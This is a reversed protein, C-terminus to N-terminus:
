YPSIGPPERRTRYRALAAAASASIILQAAWIAMALALILDDHESERWAEYSDHGGASIKARFKLMENTLLEAHPLGKAIRLVRNQVALQAVAVLDRKPVTYEQNGVLNVTAGNTITIGIPSLDSFHEIVGRGVGTQDVALYRPMPIGACRIRTQQAIATYKTQLPFREIHRVDIQTLPMMEVPRTSTMPLGTERDRVDATVNRKAGSAELIVLASFDSVQGLDLGGVFISM